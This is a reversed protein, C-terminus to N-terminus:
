LDYILNIVSNHDIRHYSVQVLLEQGDDRWVVQQKINTVLRPRGM